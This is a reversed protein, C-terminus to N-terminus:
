IQRLVLRWQLFLRRIFRNEVFFLWVKYKNAVNDVIEYIRSDQFETFCFVITSSAANTLDDDVM